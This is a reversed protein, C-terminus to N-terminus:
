PTGEALAPFQRRAGDILLRLGLQFQADDPCLSRGFAPASPLIPFDVPEDAEADSRETALGHELLVFGRTYISCLEYFRAAHEPALGARLLVAIEVEFREMVRRAVSPRSLLHRASRGFLELYVPSHRAAERFASFYAILEEAWPREQVAPLRAYLEATVREALVVLLEDKSRFYWYLSTVGSGLQRALGPMSLERLGRRAILESAAALIEDRSLSGRPRRAPRPHAKPRIARADPALPQSKRKGV